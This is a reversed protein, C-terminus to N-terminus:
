RVLLCKRVEQYDGTKLQSFYLGPKEHAVDWYLTHEGAMKRGRFLQRVLNGKQDLINIEVFQDRNLHFSISTQRYFPNPFNPELYSNSKKDVKKKMGTIENEWYIDDLGFECSAGNVELIVFEYSLMRLDILEGRIESVPVSALGWEGNRELGYKTSHAPFNVYEQNGWADIIGIQFEVNAPIKIRFKLYGEEFGSLNVPQLSLIGAGFWGKGTTSWSIGNEGEFPAISGADLTGEWVYIEANQGPVLGGEVPTEDTFIGFPSDEVNPPGLHVEGQGNWEMVKIYDVFMDAPLPMTVPEGSAPDGLQYADTFSGGIAMNAILYFPQRFEDSVDSIPFPEEYLDYEEGQDTVTFRLSNEDWYVRYIMFRGNLPNDHNYYPRCYNDEPDWSISAAGLPNGPVIAQQDFFIANSGVVENVTSNNNGNGGNHTDHLDRFSQQHGMEMIDIEGSYPWNLNSTGLLWVAPWGGLDLDPVLVRTEILGYKVSVKARSNVRGSTYLLPNGWQDVIGPGSEKKTTIKLANNGPEGPIEVIKVNEEHYYELEGNGWGWSGNGTAINWNDLQDFNEEWIVAGIQAHVVQFFFLLTGISLFVNVSQNSPILTKM